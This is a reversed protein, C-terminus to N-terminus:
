RIELSAGAARACKEASSSAKCTIFKLALDKAAVASSVKALYGSKGAEDCLRVAMTGDHTVLQMGTAAGCFNASPTRKDEPAIPQKGATDDIAQTVLQDGAKALREGNFNGADVDDGKNKRFCKGSGAEKLPKCKRVTEQAKACESPTPMETPRITSPFNRIYGAREVARRVM